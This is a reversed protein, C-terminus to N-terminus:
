GLSRPKDGLCVLWGPTFTPPVSGRGELWPLPEAKTPCPCGPPVRRLGERPVGAMVMGATTAAPVSVSGSGLPKPFPQPRPLTQVARLAVAAQKQPQQRQPLVHCCIGQLVRSDSVSLGLWSALEERRPARPQYKGM